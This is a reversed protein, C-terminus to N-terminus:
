PGLMQVVVGEVMGVLCLLVEVEVELCLVGVEEEQEHWCVVGLGGTEDEVGEGVEMQHFREEGEEEM